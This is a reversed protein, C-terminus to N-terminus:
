SNKGREIYGNYGLFEIDNKFMFKIPIKIKKVANYKRLAKPGLWGKVEILQKGFIIFDPCYSFEGINDKLHIRHRNRKVPIGWKICAEVFKKELGGQCKIGQVNFWKCRNKKNKRGYNPCNKGRPRVKGIL